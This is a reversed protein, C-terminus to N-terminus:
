AKRRNGAPVLGLPGPKALFSLTGVGSEGEELRWRSKGFACLPRNNRDGPPLQVEKEHFSSLGNAPNTGTLNVAKGRPWRDGGTVNCPSVPRTGVM